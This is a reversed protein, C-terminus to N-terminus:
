SAVQVAPKKMQEYKLRVCCHKCAWDDSKSKGGCRWCRFGKKEPKKEFQKKRRNRPRRREKRHQDQFLGHVVSEIAKSSRKKGWRDFEIFLHCEGCVSMLCGVNTGNLVDFSYDRHHVQWARAGCLRCCPRRKLQRSRISAWKPSKLYEAYSKFGLRELAGM